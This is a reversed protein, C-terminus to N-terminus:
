QQPSLLPHVAAMNEGLVSRSYFVQGIGDLVLMRGCTIRFIERFGQLQLCQSVYQVRGYDSM